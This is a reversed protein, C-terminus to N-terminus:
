DDYEGDRLAQAVVGLTVRARRERELQKKWLGDKRLEYIRARVISNLTVPNLADLEWSSYGYKPVYTKARSDTLKAPNKPPKYQEVQDYNLAMREIEICEHAEGMFLKLRDEIDRTMDIGSPDHDGLHLVVTPQAIKGDEKGQTVRELMRRGARWQASQSTYGRCSFLPVDETTCLEEFVGVLADKEIWVECRIPQDQWKDIKFQESCFEIIEEPTEWHANERLHRTRDVISDWDIHGPLRANVIIDGLRNYSPLSNPILDRAIFQYYLQRLTLDFGQEIFEEIIENAQEVVAWTEDSFRHEKYCIRPM